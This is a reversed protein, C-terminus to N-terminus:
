NPQSTSGGQPDPHTHHALSKGEATVDHTVVVPGLMTAGGGASGQGQSLMGNIVVNGNIIFTPTTLTTNGAIEGTLTGSAKIEVDGKVDAKLKHSARDYEVVTGDEFTHHWKDQSGVPVADADSYIAGGVVGFEENKDMHCVVHEGLDPMHYAKDKLTKKQVVPLWDSVMGDQDAFQVRVKGTSPDSATVIGIKM